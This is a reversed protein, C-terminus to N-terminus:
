ENLKKILEILKAELDVLNDVPMMGERKWGGCDLIPRKYVLGYSIESSTGHSGPLAIIIDASAAVMANRAFGITTPLAVDIYQNADDKSIGPLLGITLGGAEKAGRSVAEMAGGLGGCVTICGLKGIIKGVDHALQDVESSIKSGGIVSITIKQTRM